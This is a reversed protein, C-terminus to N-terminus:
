RLRHVRATRQESSLPELNHDSTRPIRPGACRAYRAANQQESRVSHHPRIIPGNLPHGYGTGVAEEPDLAETRIAIEGSFAAQAPVPPIERPRNFPPRAPDSTIESLDVRRRTLEAHLAGIFNARAHGWGHNGIQSNYAAVLERMSMQRFRRSYPNRAEFVRIMEDPPWPDTRNNM